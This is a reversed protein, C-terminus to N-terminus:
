VMSIYWGDKWGSEGMKKRRKASNELFLFQGEQAAVVDRLTFKSLFLFKSSSFFHSHCNLLYFSAILCEACLKEVDNM